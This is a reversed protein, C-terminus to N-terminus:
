EKIQHDTLWASIADRLKSANRELMPFHGTNDIRVTTKDTTGTFNDRQHDEGDRTFIPSNNAFMFMVPVTIESDRQTNTPFASIASRVWGCPNRNRLRHPGDLVARMVATDANFFITNRFEPDPPGFYMYGGRGGPQAPEGGQDCVRLAQTALGLLYPTRGQDAIELTILGDIDKWSYAEIQAATGGVDYGVLVVQSFKVTKPGARIGRRLQQVIQHTVDAESGLCAQFGDPHGSAGYGLMDVTLSVHGQKAMQDSFNHGSVATFRWTWEGGADFGGLYLEVAKPASGRLAARPGTLHGRVAYTAGDSPCLVGSTNTNQVQFSVPLTTVPQSGAAAAPRTSAAAIIVVVAAMTLPRRLSSMVKIPTTM